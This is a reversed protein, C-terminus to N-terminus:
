RGRREQAATWHVVENSRCAPRPHVLGDPCSFLPTVARRHQNVATITPALQGDLVIGSTEPSRLHRFHHLPRGEGGVLESSQRPAIRRVLATAAGFRPKVRYSRTAVSAGGSMVSTDLGAPSLTTVLGEVRGRGNAARKRSAASAIEAHSVGACPTAASSIAVDSRGASTASPASTSAVVPSSGGSPSASASVAVGASTSAAASTGGSSDTPVSAAGPKSAVSATSVASASAPVSVSDAGSVSACASEGTVGSATASAAVSAASASAKVPVSATPVSAAAASASASTASESAAPAASASAEGSASSESAATAHVACLQSSPSTQVASPQSGASPQVYTVTEHSSALTHVTSLQRTPMPQTFAGCSAVQLSAFAHVVPSLHTAPTHAPVLASSQVSALGQVASLQAGSVPQM